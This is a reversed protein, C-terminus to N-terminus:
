SFLRIPISKTRFENWVHYIWISVMRNTDESKRAWSNEWAIWRFLLSCLFVFCFLWIAQREMLQSMTSKSFCFFFFFFLVHDYHGRVLVGIQKSIIPRSCIATL